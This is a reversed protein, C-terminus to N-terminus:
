PILRAYAGAFIGDKEKDVDEESSRRAAEEKYACYAKVVERRDNPPEYLGHRQFWHGSNFDVLPHEPSVVFSMALFRIQARQLFVCLVPLESDTDPILVELHGRGRHETWDLEGAHRKCLKLGIWLSNEERVM